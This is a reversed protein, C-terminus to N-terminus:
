RKGEPLDKVVWLYEITDGVAMKDVQDMGNGLVKGFISYQTDLSPASGLMIFMQSGASNIDQARAMSLIGKTHKLTKSFEAPLTFGPGGTGVRPSELGETKTIPDGFQVVFGPEVRHIIIGDYFKERALKCIAKVTKPATDPWLEMYIVGHKTQMALVPKTSNKYQADGATNKPGPKAKSKAPDEQKHNKAEEAAKRSAEAAAAKEEPTPEPVKDKSDTAMGAKINADVEAQGPEYAKTPPAALDGAYGGVEKSGDKGGATGQTGRGCGALLTLTALLTLGALRRM